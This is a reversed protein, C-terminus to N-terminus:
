SGFRLVRDYCSTPLLEPHFVTYTMKYVLKQPLFERFNMRGEFCFFTKDLFFVIKLEGIRCSGSLSRQIM